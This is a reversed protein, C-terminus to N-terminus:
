FKETGGTEDAAKGLFMGKTSGIASQQLAVVPGTTTPLRQIGKLEEVM